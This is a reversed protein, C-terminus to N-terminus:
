LSMNHINLSTDSGASLICVHRSPKTKKPKWQSQKKRNANYLKIQSLSSKAQKEKHNTLDMM